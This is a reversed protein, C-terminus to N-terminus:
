LRLCARGSGAAALLSHVSTKFRGGATLLGWNNEVILSSSKSPEDFAEFAGFEINHRDALPLFTTWFTQENATNPVAVSGYPSPAGRSPWGTESIVVDKGPYLERLKRYIRAVHGAAQGASVGDWYPHINAFIIDINSDQGLRTATYGDANASAYGTDSGTNIYQGLYTEATTFKLASSISSPLRHRVYAIASEISDESWGGVESIEENGVVVFSISSLESAPLKELASVLGNLESLINPNAKARRWSATPGGVPQGNPSPLFVSPIVRLGKKIAYDIVQDQGDDISYFRIANAFNGAVLADIQKKMQSVFVPVSGVSGPTQGAKTYPGFDAIRLSRVTGACPANSTRGPTQENAPSSSVSIPICFAAAAVTCLARTRWRHKQPAM